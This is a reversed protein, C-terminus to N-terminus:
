GWPIQGPAVSFRLGPALFPPTGANSGIKIALFTTGFILCILVYAVWARRPIGATRFM